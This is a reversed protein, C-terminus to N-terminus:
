DGQLWDGSFIRKAMCRLRLPLVAVGEAYCPNAWAWRPLHLYYYSRLFFQILTGRVSKKPIEKCGSDQTAGMLLRTAHWEARRSRPLQPPYPMGTLREVLCLYALFQIGLGHGLGQQYWDRWSLVQGYTQVLYAFEMVERLAVQSRIFERHPLLAHVTNHLLRHAPSPLGVSLGASEIVQHDAWVRDVPFARGAQAYVTNYHLEIEVPSDPKRCPALHHHRCDTALGDLAVFDEDFLYGLGTLVQQARALDAPRVLIDLDALTRAGPDAYLDDYFTAAGKFLIAEIDAGHFASLVEDLAQRFGENRVVNTLYNNRQLGQNEGPLSPWLGDARLRAYLLPGCREAYAIRWLAAWDVQGREIATRLRTLLHQDQWPTLLLALLGYTDRPLGARERDARGLREPEVM